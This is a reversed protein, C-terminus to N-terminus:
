VEEWEEEDMGCYDNFTYEDIIIYLYEDNYPYDPFSELVKDKSKFEYAWMDDYMMQEGETSPDASPNVLMILVDKGRIAGVFSVNKQDIELEQFTLTIEDGGFFNEKRLRILEGDIFCSLAKYDHKRSIEILDNVNM